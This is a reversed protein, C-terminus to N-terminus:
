IVTNFNTRFKKRFLTRPVPGYLYKSKINHKKRILIISNQYFTLGMTAFNKSPQSARVILGRCINGKVNYKFKFGKYEYRPPSVIRASGKIFDGIYSTKRHFGKYLHFTQLWKVTTGDSVSLWTQKKVM